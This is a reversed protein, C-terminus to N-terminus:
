AEAARGSTALAGGAAGVVNTKAGEAKARETAAETAARTLDNAFFLMYGQQAADQQVRAFAVQSVVSDNHEYWVPAGEATHRVLVDAVYHGSFPTQGKHRVVGVLRYAAAQRLPLVEGVDRGGAAHGVDGVAQEGTASAARARTDKKEAPRAADGAGAAAAAAAAPANGTEMDADGNAPADEEGADGDSDDILLVKPRSSTLVDANGGETDSVGAGGGSGRAAGASLAVAGGMDHDGGASGGGGGAATAGGQDALCGNFQREFDETYTELSLALAKALEPDEEDEGGTLDVRAVPAGGGAAGGCGAVRGAGTSGLEALTMTEGVLHEERVTPMRHVPAGSLVDSSFGFRFADDHNNRGAGVGAAGGGTGSGARALVVFECDGVDLKCDEDNDSAAGGDRVAMSQLELEDNKYPATGPKFGPPSPPPARAGGARVAQEQAEADPTALVRQWDDKAGGGGGGGSRDAARREWATRQRQEEEFAEKSLRIAMALEADLEGDNAAETDAENGGADERADAMEADGNSDAAAAAAKARAAAPSQATTGDNAADAGGGWFGFLPKHGGHAHEHVAGAGAAGLLNRRKRRKNALLGAARRGGPTPHTIGNGGKLDAGVAGLGHKKRHLKDHLNRPGGGEANAPRVAAAGEGDDGGADTGADAASGGDESSDGSLAPGGAAGAAPAAWGAAGAAVAAGKGAAPRADDGAAAGGASEDQIELLSDGDGDGDGDGIRFASPPAGGEDDGESGGGVRRVGAWDGGGNDGHHHHHHHQHHQGLSGLTHHKGHGVGNVWGGGSSDSSDGKVHAPKPPARGPVADSLDLVVKHGGAGGKCGGNSTGAATAAATATATTGASAKADTAAALGATAEQKPQQQQQQPPPPPAPPQLQAERQPQDLMSLQLVYQLQEEDTMDELRKSGLLGGAPGLETDHGGGAAATVAAAARSAAATAAAAAGSAGPPKYTSLDLATHAAYPARGVRETAPTVAAGGGSGGSGGAPSFFRSTPMVRPDKRGSAGAAPTVGGAGSGGGEGSGTAAGGPHSRGGAGPGHAAAHDIPGSNENRWAYESRPDRQQTLAHSSPAIGGHPTAEGGAAAAAAMGGTSWITSAAGGGDAGHGGGTPGAEVTREQLGSRLMFSPSPCTSGGGATDLTHCGAQAPAAAPPAASSPGPGAAAEGVAAGGAAAGGAARELAAPPVGELLHVHARAGADCYAALNLRPEVEVSTHVPPTAERQQQAAAAPPPVSQPPPTGPTLPDRLPPTPAGSSDGGAPAAPAEAEDDASGPAPPSPVSGEKTREQQAAQLPAPAPLQQQQQQQQQLPMFRKIHVVLVRPLRWFHHSATHPVPSRPSCQDCNKDVVEDKLFEAVLDELRVCGSPPLQLSLCSFVEKARTVHGCGRCAWTHMLCGSLNRAAPDRTRSMAIRQKGAAAAEAALVESQLAELLEVLFEHADQQGFGRWRGSRRGMAARLEAPEVAPKALDPSPSRSATAAQLRNATALLAAWVGASGQPLLQRHRLQELAPHSLDGAFSPMHLLVQIVSNLYCTNGLNVMGAPTLRNQNIRERQGAFLSKICQQKRPESGGFTGGPPRKVGTAATKPWAPATRAGAAEAEGDSEGLEYPDHANGRGPAVVDRRAPM